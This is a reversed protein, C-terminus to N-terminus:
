QTARRRRHEVGADSRDARNWRDDAERDDGERDDGERHGTLGKGIPDRGQDPPVLAGRSSNGKFGDVRKSALIM